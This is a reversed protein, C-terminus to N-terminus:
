MEHALSGRRTFHDQKPFVGHDIALRGQGNGDGLHPRLYPHVPDENRPYPDISGIDQQVLSKIEKISGAPTGLVQVESGKQLGLSGEEPFRIMLDHEPVFWGQARAAIIIGAILALVVILVFAGVIEIVYRFKFPKSM